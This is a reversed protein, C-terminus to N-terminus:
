PHGVVIEGLGDDLHGLRVHVGLARGQAAEAGANLAAEEVGAHALHRTHTHTHAHTHTHTHTHTNVYIYKYIYICVCM